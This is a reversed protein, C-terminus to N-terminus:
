SRMGWLWGSVVPLGYSCNEYGRQEAFHLGISWVKRRLRREAEDDEVQRDVRVGGGALKLV